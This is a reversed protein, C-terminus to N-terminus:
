QIIAIVWRFKLVGFVSGFPGLSRSALLKCPDIVGVVIVIKEMRFYFNRLSPSSLIVCRSEAVLCFKKKEKIERWANCKASLVPRCDLWLMGGYMDRSTKFFSFFLGPFLQCGGSLKLSFFNKVLSYTIALKYFLVGTKIDIIHKHRDKENSGNSTLDGWVLLSKAKLPHSRRVKSWAASGPSTVERAPLTVARTPVTGTPHDLQPFRVESSFSTVIGRSPGDFRKNSCIKSAIETHEVRKIKHSAYNMGLKKVLSLFTIARPTPSILFSMGSHISM